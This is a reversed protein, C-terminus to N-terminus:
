RKTVHNWHYWLHCWQIQKTLIILHPAVHGTKTLYHMQYSMPMMHHQHCQWHCLQMEQDHSAKADANCSVLSMTLTVHCQQWCKYLLSLCIHGEFAVYAVHALWNMCVYLVLINTYMGRIFGICNIHPVCICMCKVNNAYAGPCIHKGYWVFM